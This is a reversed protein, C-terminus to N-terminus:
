RGPRHQAADVEDTVRPAGAPARGPPRLCRQARRPVVGPHRPRGRDGRWEGVLAADASVVTAALEHLANVDRFIVDPDSFLYVNCRSTADVDHEDARLQSVGARIGHAHDLLRHREVLGVRPSRGALQRLFPVGGDVSGNDVIVIRHVLGLATQEALTLLLLKLFRTTSFNVVIIAFRVSGDFPEITGPGPRRLMRALHHRSLVWVQDSAWPSTADRWRAVVSGTVAGALPPDRARRGRHPGAALRRAPRPHPGAPGTAPPWRGCIAGPTTRPRRRCRDARHRHRRSRCGSGVVRGGDRSDVIAEWTPVEVIGRKRLPRDDIDLSDPSDVLVARSGSVFVRLPVVVQHEGPENGIM